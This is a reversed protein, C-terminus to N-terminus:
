CEHKQILTEIKSGYELMKSSIVWSRGVQLIILPLFVFVLLSGMFLLRPNRKFRYHMLSPPVGKLLSYYAANNGFYKRTLYLVSPVPRPALWSKPRFSDWSGMQRLGGKSAKVDICYSYPNSISKFGALYSRLGFEADGARQREFQRDFLGIIEFVNKRLCANGTAFQDGWRFFKRSGPIETGEPFFVGASIDAKFYDLCKLHNSLWDKPIRIDDEYLAIFENESERIANNRALWLAKEEQRILKIDLNFGEYFEPQYPESQDVVIVDFNSYNQQELDYLADKLWQYRNLTPIVVSVKPHTQLLPSEFTHFAVEHKFVEKFLNERRVNRNRIFGRIESSPNHLSALRLFLVYWCWIPNFYKRIFRYNDSVSPQQDCELLAVKPNSSIIGKQMAQYAADLLSSQEISYEADFQLLSRSEEPLKHYDVFYPINRAQSRLNFYWGPLIYELFQFM